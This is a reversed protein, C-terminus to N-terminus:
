PTVLSVAGPSVPVSAALLFFDVRSVNGAVNPDSREGTANRAYFTLTYTASPLLGQMAPLLTGLCGTPAPAELMRVSSKPVTFNTIMTGQGKITIEAFYDAVKLAGLQDVANHDVSYFTLLSKGFEVPAPTTIPTCATGSPPPTQASAAWASLLLYLAAFIAVRLQNLVLGALKDHTTATM